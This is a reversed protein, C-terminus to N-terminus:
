YSLHGGDQIKCSSKESFTILSDPDEIVGVNWTEYFDTLYNM